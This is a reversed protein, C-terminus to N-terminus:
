QVLGSCAPPTISDLDGNRMEARTGRGLSRIRWPSSSSFDLLKNWFIIEFAKRRSAWEWSKLYRHRGDTRWPLSEDCVKFGRERKGQRGKTGTKGM